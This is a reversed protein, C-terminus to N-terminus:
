PKQQPTEPCRIQQSEGAERIKMDAQILQFDTASRAAANWSLRHPVQQEILYERQDEALAPLNNNV